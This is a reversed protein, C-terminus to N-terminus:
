LNNIYTKVDLLLEHKSAQFTESIFFNDITERFYSLAKHPGCEKVLKDICAKLYPKIM